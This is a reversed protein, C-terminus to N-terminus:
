TPFSQLADESPVARRHFYGKEKGTRSRRNLLSCSTGWLVPELISHRDGAPRVRALRGRFLGQLHWRACPGETRGHLTGTQRSFELSRAAMTHRERASFSDRYNLYM